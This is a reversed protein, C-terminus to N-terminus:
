WLKWGMRFKGDVVAGRDACAAHYGRGSGYVWIVIGRGGQGVGGGIRRGQRNEGHAERWSGFIAPM